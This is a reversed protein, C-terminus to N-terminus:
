STYLLCDEVMGLIRREKILKDMLIRNAELIDWPRGVDIWEDEKAKVILMKFGSDMAANIADTLEIEGRNSKPTRELFDFIEPKLIYIGGNILNPGEINPKEEIRLLLNNKISLVGFEKANRVPVALIAGFYSKNFLSIMDHLISPHFALDGYIVLFPDDKLLNRCSLLAEGTGGLSPQELYGIKIGFKSGDGLHAKISEGMYKIVIIIENVNIEKLANIIHEILTAGAIPIMHKPRTITFPELRIGKGAALIVAKTTM